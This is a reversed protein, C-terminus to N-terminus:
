GEKGTLRELTDDQAFNKPLDKISILQSIVDHLFNLFTYKANGTHFQYLKHTNLATQTILRFALKKYWRYSKRLVHISHLQQDVMDVGGIYSNYDKIM